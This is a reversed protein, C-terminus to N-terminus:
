ASTDMRSLPAGMRGDGGRVRVDQVPQKMDVPKYVHDTVAPLYAQSKIGRRMSRGTATNNTHLIGLTPRHKVSYAPIGGEMDADDAERERGASSRTEKARKPETISGITKSHVSSFTM